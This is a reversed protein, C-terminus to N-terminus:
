RFRSRSKLRMEINGCEAVIFRPLAVIRCRMNLIVHMEEGSDKCIRLSCCRLNATGASQAVNERNCKNWAELTCYIVEFGEFCFYEHLVKANRKTLFTASRAYVSKGYFKMTCYSNALDCFKWDNLVPDTGETVVKKHKASAM